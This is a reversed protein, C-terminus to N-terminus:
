LNFLKEMILIKVKLVNNTLNFSRFWKEGGWDTYFDAYSIGIEVMFHCKILKLIAYCHRIKFLKLYFCLFCKM